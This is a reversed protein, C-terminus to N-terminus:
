CSSGASFFSSFVKPDIVVLQGQSSAGSLNFALMPPFWSFRANLDGQCATFLLGSLRHLHLDECAVTGPIIKLGETNDVGHINTFGSAPRTVGLVYLHTAIPKYLLSALVAFLGIILTTVTLVNSRKAPPVRAQTQAKSSSM